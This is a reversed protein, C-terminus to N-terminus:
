IGGHQPAWALMHMSGSGRHGDGMSSCAGTWAFTLSRVSPSCFRHVTKQESQVAVLSGCPLRGQQLIVPLQADAMSM